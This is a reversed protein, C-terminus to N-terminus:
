CNCESETPYFTTNEPCFNILDGYSDCAICYGESCYYQTQKSPGVTASCDESSIICL